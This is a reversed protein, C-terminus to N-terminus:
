SEIVCDGLFHNANMKLNTSINQKESCVYKGINVPLVHKLRMFRVTM